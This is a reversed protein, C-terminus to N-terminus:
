KSKPRELWYYSLSANNKCPRRSLILTIPNDQSLEGLMMHTQLRACLNDFLARGTLKLRTGDTLLLVTEVTTTQEGEPDTFDAKQATFAAIEIPQNLYKAGDSESDITMREHFEASEYDDVVYSRAIYQAGQTIWDSPRLSIARFDKIGIERSIALQGEQQDVGIENPESMVPQREKQAANILAARGPISTAVHM